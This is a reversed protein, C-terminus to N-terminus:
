CLEALQDRFDVSLLHNAHFVLLGFDNQQCRRHIGDLLGIRATLTGLVNITDIVGVRRCCILGILLVLNRPM